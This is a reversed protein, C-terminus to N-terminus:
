EQMVKRLHLLVLSFPLVVSYNMSTPVIPPPPPSISTVVLKLRLLLLLNPLHAMQMITTPVLNNRRPIQVTTNNLRKPIPLTRHNQITNITTIRIEEVMGMGNTNSIQLPRNFTRSEMEMAMGMGM